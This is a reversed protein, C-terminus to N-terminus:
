LKAAWYIEGAVWSLLGVGLVLWPVREQRVLAARLLCAVAASLMLGSYVFDNFLWDVGSGGLGLGLHAVYAAFVVLVLGGCVRLWTQRRPPMGVYGLDATPAVRKLCAAGM